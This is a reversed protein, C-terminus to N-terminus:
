STALVRFLVCLFSGALMVTLGKLLVKAYAPVVVFPKRGIKDMLSGAVLTTVFNCAYFFIWALSIWAAARSNNDNTMYDEVFSQLSVMIIGEAAASMGYYVPLVGYKTQFPQFARFAEM